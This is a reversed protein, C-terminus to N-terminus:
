PISLHTVHCDVAYEACTLTTMPRHKPISGTPLLAAAAPATPLWSTISASSEVTGRKALSRATVAAPLGINVEVARTIARGVPMDDLVVGTVALSAVFIHSVDLAVFVDVITLLECLRDSPYAAPLEPSDAGCAILNCLLCPCEYKQRM